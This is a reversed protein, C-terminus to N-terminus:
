LYKEILEHLRENNGTIIVLWHCLEHLLVQYQFKKNKQKVVVVQAHRRLRIENKSLCYGHSYSHLIPTMILGWKLSQTYHTAEIFHIELNLPKIIM